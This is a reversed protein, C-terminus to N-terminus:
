AAVVRRAVPRVPSRDFRLAAGVRLLRRRGRLTRFYDAHLVLMRSQVLEVAVRLGLLGAAVAVLWGCWAPREERRVDADVVIDIEFGFVGGPNGLDDIRAVVAGAMAAAYSDPAVSFAAGSSGCVVVEAAGEM